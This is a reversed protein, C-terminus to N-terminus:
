PGARSRRRTPPPTIGNKRALERLYYNNIELANDIDNLRLTLEVREVDRQTNREEMRKVAASTAKALGHTENAKLNGSALWGMFSLTVGAIIITFISRILGFNIIAKKLKAAM